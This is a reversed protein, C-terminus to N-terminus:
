NRETVATVTTGTDPKINANEQINEQEKKICELMTNINWLVQECVADVNRLAEVMEDVTMQNNM